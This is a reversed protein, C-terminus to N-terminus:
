SVAHLVSPFTCNKIFQPQHQPYDISLQELRPFCFTIMSADTMDMRSYGMYNDKQVFSLTLTRLREFIIQKPRPSGHFVGWDFNQPVGALSLHELTQANVKCPLYPLMDPMATLKLCTLYESFRTTMSCRFPSYILRRLQGAYKEVMYAGLGWVDCSYGPLDLKLEDLAPFMNVIDAAFPQFLNIHENRLVFGDGSHDLGRAAAISLAKIGPCVVAIDGLMGRIDERFGLLMDAQAFLQVYAVRSQGCYKEIASLNSYLLPQTRDGGDSQLWVKVTWRDLREGARFWEGSVGRLERLVTQARQSDPESDIVLRLVDTLFKSPLLHASNVSLM